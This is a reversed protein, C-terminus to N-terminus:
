YPFDMVVLKDVIATQPELKQATGQALIQIELEGKVEVAVGKIDVEVEIAGTIRVEVMARVEAKVKVRFSTKNNDRAAIEHSTVLNEVTTASEMRTNSSFWWRQIVKTTVELSDESKRQDCRRM